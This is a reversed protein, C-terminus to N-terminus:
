KKKKKRPHLVVGAHRFGASAVRDRLKASKDDYGKGVMQLAVGLSNQQGSSSQGSFRHVRDSALRGGVSIVRFPGIEETQGTLIQMPQDDNVEAWEKPDIDQPLSEPANPDKRFGGRSVIQGPKPVIFSVYDGPTILSHPVSSGGVTVFMAVEGEELHLEAPPTRIEKNLIVDGSEFRRLAKLGVITGRDKYFVASESLYKANKRPIDLPVFHSELFTDGPDLTTGDEIALFSVMEIETTKKELYKWNLVGAVLALSIAILLGIWDKM